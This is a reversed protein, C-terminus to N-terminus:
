DGCYDTHELTTGRYFELKEVPQDTTIKAEVTIPGIILTFLILPFMKQNNLYLYGQEPHTIEVTIAQLQPPTTFHKTSENLEISQTLPVIAAILLMMIFISVVKNKM